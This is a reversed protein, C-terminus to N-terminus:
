PMTGWTVRHKRHKPRRKKARKEACLQIVADLEDRSLFQLGRGGKSAANLKAIIRQRYEQDANRGPRGCRSRRSSANFRQSLERLEKATPLADDSRVFKRGVKTSYGGPRAARQSM